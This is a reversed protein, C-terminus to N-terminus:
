SGSFIQVKQESLLSADQQEHKLFHSCVQFGGTGSAAPFNLCVVALSVQGDASLKPPSVPAPFGGEANLYGNEPHAPEYVAPKAPRSVGAP